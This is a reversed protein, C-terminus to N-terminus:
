IIDAVFLMISTGLLGIVIFLVMAIRYIRKVQKFQCNAKSDSIMISIATPLGATSVMYLYTYFTYATNYYGMGEDGVTHNMPIKFLLGIVKIILNSVTLILVGSFFLKSSNKLKFKGTNKSIDKM